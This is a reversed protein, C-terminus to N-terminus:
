EASTGLWPTTMIRTFGYRPMQSEGGSHLSADQRQLLQLLNTMGVPACRLPPIQQKHPNAIM